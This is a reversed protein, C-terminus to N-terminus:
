PHQVASDGPAKKALSVRASRLRRSDDTSARLQGRLADGDRVLVLTGKQIGGVLPERPALWLRLADGDLEGHLELAGLAGTMQGVVNRDEAITLELQGQGVLIQNGDVERESKPLELQFPEAEYSGAWEGVYWPRPAAKPLPPIPLSAESVPTAEAHDKKCAGVLLLASLAAWAVWPPAAVRVIRM